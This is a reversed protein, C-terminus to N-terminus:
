RTDDKRTAPRPVDFPRHESAGVLRGGKAAGSFGGRGATKSVDPSTSYPQRTRKPTRETM